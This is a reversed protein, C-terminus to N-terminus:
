GKTGEKQRKREGYETEHWIHGCDLCLGWIYHPAVDSPHIVACKNGGCKPCKM